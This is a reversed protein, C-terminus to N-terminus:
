REPPPNPEDICTYIHVDSPTGVAFVPQAVGFVCECLRDMEHSVVNYVTSPTHVQIVCLTPWRERYCTKLVIAM